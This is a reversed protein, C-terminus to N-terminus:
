GAMSTLHPANRDAEDELDPVAARRGPRANLWGTRVGCHLNGDCRQPQEDGVGGRGAASKRPSCLLQVRQSLWPRTWGAAPTGGGAGPRPLSRLSAPLQFAALPATISCCLVPMTMNRASLEASRCVPQTKLLPFFFQRKKPLHPPTDATPTHAPCASSGTNQTQAHTVHHMVTLLQKPKATQQPSEVQATKYLLNAPM